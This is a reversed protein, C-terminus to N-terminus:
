ADIRKVAEYMARCWQPEEKAWCGFVWDAGCEKSIDTQGGGTWQMVTKTGAQRAITLTDEPLRLIYATGWAVALVIGSVPTVLAPTGYLLCRCDVPLAKGMQDWVQEVIEPHSGREWYPDKGYSDPAAIASSAPRGLEDTFCRLVGTNLSATLDIFM